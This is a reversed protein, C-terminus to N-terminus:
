DRGPSSRFNSCRSAFETCFVWIAMSVLFMIIIKCGSSAFYYSYVSWDGTKRQADLTNNTEYTSLPVSIFSEAVTSEVRSIETDEAAHERITDEDRLALDLKAVYGGNALLAQPSGVEVIRGNELAVVNDVFSM